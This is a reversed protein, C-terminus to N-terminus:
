STMVRFPIGAPVSNSTVGQNAGSFFQLYNPQSPHTLGHMNTFNAGNQALWKIYPAAPNGIVNQQAKNEEIVIVVHDYPPPAAATEFWVAAFTALAASCLSFRCM